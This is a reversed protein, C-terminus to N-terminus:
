LLLKEEWPKVAKLVKSGLELLNPRYYYRTFIGPPIRGQLLDVAETSIYGRMYTAWARRVEQLKMKLNERHLKKRLINYSTEETFQELAERVTPSIFSLYANKKVRLFEKFKFHELAGFERNYYGNLGHQQVRRIVLFVEEARLGTLFALTTPFYFRWGLSKVAEAWQFLDDLKSGGNLINRLSEFSNSSNWKLGYKQKFEDFLEPTGIYRTFARIAKLLNAKQFGSLNHIRPDYEFM